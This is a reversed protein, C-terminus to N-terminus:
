YTGSDFQTSIPQRWQVGDWLKLTLNTTDYWLEGVSNGSSGGPAPTYNPATSSVQAPGIKIVSGEEDEYFLGPTRDSYNLYIEGLKLEQATPRLNTVQTRKNFFTVGM